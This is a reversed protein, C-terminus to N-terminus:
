SINGDDLEFWVKTVGDNVVGWDNALRNVLLLGWGAMQDSRERVIEPIEFGVGQDVVEVRLRSPSLELTLEIWGENNLGAHRLSNTVLESVLLQVKESLSPEVFRTIAGNVTHRAAAASQQSNPLRLSLRMAEDTGAPNM